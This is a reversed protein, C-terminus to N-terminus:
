FEYSTNIAWTKESAMKAFSEKTVSGSAIGEWVGEKEKAFNLADTFHSTYRNSGHTALINKLTDSMRSHSNPLIREHLDPISTLLLSEHRLLEECFEVYLENKYFSAPWGATLDFRQVLGAVTYYPANVSTPYADGTNTLRILSHCIDSRRRTVEEQQRPFSMKTFALSEAQLKFFM